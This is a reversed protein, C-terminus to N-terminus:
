VKLRRYLSRFHREPDESLKSIDQLNIELMSKSRNIKKLITCIKSYTTGFEDLRIDLNEYDSLLVEIKDLQTQTKDSSGDAILKSMKNKFRKNTAVASSFCSDIMELSKNLIDVKDVLASFREMDKSALSKTIQRKAKYAKDLEQAIKYVPLIGDLSNPYRIKIFTIEAPTTKTPM